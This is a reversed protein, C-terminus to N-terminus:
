SRVVPILGKTILGDLLRASRARREAHALQWADPSLIVYNSLHRYPNNKKRSFVLAGPLRGFAILGEADWRRAIAFDDENMKRVDILGGADVACTELYLLLGREDKTLLEYTIM